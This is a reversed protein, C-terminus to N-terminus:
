KEASRFQRKELLIGRCCMFVRCYIYSDLIKRWLMIKQILMNKRVSYGMFIVCGCILLSMGMCEYFKQWSFGAKESRIEMSNM